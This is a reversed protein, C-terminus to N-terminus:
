IWYMVDLGDIHPELSLYVGLGALVLSVVLGIGCFIAIRKLTEFDTQTESSPSIAKANSYAKAIATAAM